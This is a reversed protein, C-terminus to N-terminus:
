MTRVDKKKRIKIKLIQHCRKCKLKKHTLEHLQKVEMGCLTKKGNQDRTLHFKFGKTALCYNWVESVHMYNTLRVLSLIKM